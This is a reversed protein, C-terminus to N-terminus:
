IAKGDDADQIEKFFEIVSDCNVYKSAITDDSDSSMPDEDVDEKSTM